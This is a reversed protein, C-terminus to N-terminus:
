PVSELLTFLRLSRRLWGKMFVLQNSANLCFDVYRDQLLYVYNYIFMEVNAKDLATLTEPGMIGDPIISPGICQQALKIAMSQGQNVAVDLIATAIAQPLGSIHLRDWFLSQYLLKAESQSLSQIDLDSVQKKRYSTLMPITIGYNTIGGHDSRNDVLGGENQLVYEIAQQFEAM